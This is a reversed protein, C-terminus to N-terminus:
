EGGLVNRHRRKRMWDEIPHLHLLSSKGRLATLVDEERKHEVATEVEGAEREKRALGVGVDAAQAKANEDLFDGFAVLESVRFPAAADANMQTARERLEALAELVSDHNFRPPKAGAVANGSATNRWSGKKGPAPEVYGLMELTAVIQPVDAAKVELVHAVRQADWAPEAAAQKLFSLLAPAAIDPVARRENPM